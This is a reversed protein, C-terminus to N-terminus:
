KSFLVPNDPIITLIKRFEMKAALPDGLKLFKLALDIHEQVAEQTVLLQAQRRAALFELNGPMLSLAKDYQLVAFTYKKNKEFAQGRRFYEKAQTVTRIFDEQAERLVQRSLSQVEQDVLWERLGPVKDALRSLESKSKQVWPDSPEGLLIHNKFYEAAEPYRGDHEYFYAINTYLPLYTKDAKLAQLYAQEAKARQGLREYIVGMDNFIAASNNGLSAAKIYYSLAEQLNGKQQSEYGKLRYEESSEEKLDALCASHFVNLILAALFFKLLPCRMKREKRYHSYYM